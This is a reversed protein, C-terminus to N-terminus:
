KIIEVEVLMGLENKIRKVSMDVYSENLEVGISDRGLKAAVLATTGAGSLPDLITDGEKSGAAICRRVLEAPFVAFHAGKFPEPGLIWYNWLNRTGNEKREGAQARGLQHAGTKGVDFRSGAAGKVSPVRAAEANYFYKASKTLMFVKETASTPRDTVSEPMPSTKCWTIESRLYWGDAQLALAVRAPIMCLDKPKLGDQFQRNPGNHTTLAKGPGREGRSKPVGNREASKSIGPNAHHDQHAGGGGYYSDGLNLFLVGDNRLVRRVERFIEVTHQVYLEITPELGYSGRWAGCLRCFSGTSATSAMSSHFKDGEKPGNGSNTTLTSKDSPANGCPVEKEDGWEHGPCGEEGGWVQPELGYDRLGWYPPSTVCCQVSEAPLSQLVPLVHGQLLTVKNM